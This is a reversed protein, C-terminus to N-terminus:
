NCCLGLHSYSRRIPRVLILDIKFLIVVKLLPHWTWFTKSPKQKLSSHTLGRPESSGRKWCTLNM